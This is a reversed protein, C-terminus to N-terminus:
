VPQCDAGFVEGLAVIVSRMVDDDLDALKGSRVDIDAKRIRSVDEAKVVCDETCGFEGARFLVNHTLTLRHELRQSTLPVVTVWNGRNFQECSVVIGRKLHGNDLRFHYIEGPRM